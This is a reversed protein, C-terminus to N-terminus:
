ISGSNRKLKGMITYIILFSRVITIKRAITNPKQNKIKEMFLNLGQM